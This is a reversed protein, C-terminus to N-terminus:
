QKLRKNKLLKIILFSVISIGIVPVKIALIILFLFLLIIIGIFFILTNIINLIM